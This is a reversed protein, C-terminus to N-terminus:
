TKADFSNKCVPCKVRIDGKNRPVRLSNKCKECRFYKHTKKDRFKNKQLMFFNKCRSKIKLYQDNEKKRAYINKSLMRYIVFFVLVPPFFVLIELRFLSVLLSFILSIILLLKSLADFGYRGHMFQRLFNMNIM